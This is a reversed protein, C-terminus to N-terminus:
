DTVLYIKKNNDKNPYGDTETGQTSFKLSLWSIDSVFITTQQRAACDLSKLSLAFRILDKAVQHRRSSNQKIKV